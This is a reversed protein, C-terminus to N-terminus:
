RLRAPEEPEGGRAVPRTPGLVRRHDATTRGVRRGGPRDVRGTLPLWGSTLEAVRGSRAADLADRLKDRYGDREARVAELEIENMRAADELETLRARADDRERELTMAEAHADAILHHMEHIVADRGAIKAGLSGVRDGHRAEAADQDLQLALVEAHVTALEEHMAAIVRDRRALADAHQAAAIDRAASIASVSERADVVAEEIADVGAAASAFRARTDPPAYGGGGIAERLAM